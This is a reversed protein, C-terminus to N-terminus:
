REGPKNYYEFKRMSGPTPKIGAAARESEILKKQLAVDKFKQISFEQNVDGGREMFKKALVPATKDNMNDNLIARNVDQSIKKRAEQDAMDANRARYDQERQLMERNSRLGTFKRIDWEEPSRHVVARRQRDLLDGSENKFLQDETVGKLGSPTIDLMLNAFSQKDGYKAVDIGDGFVQALASLQPSLAAGPHEYDPVLNASSFKSQMAVGTVAGLYGSKIAEPLDSMLSDRINMRKGFFKNTIAGYLNDLEDYGPMGAVGALAIMSAASAAIPLPNGTKGIEKGLVIQNGVYAHKFTTLAGAFNGLVGLKAYLQPREWQHYDFMTLQTAKEAMQLSRELSIGADM